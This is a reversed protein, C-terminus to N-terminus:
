ERNQPISWRFAIPRSEGDWLMYPIFFARLGHRCVCKFILRGSNMGQKASYERQFAIPRSEGDWLM